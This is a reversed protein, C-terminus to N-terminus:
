ATEAATRPNVLDTVRVVLGPTLRGALEELSEVSRGPVVCVDALSRVPGTHLVTEYRYRTLENHPVGRKLRVDVGSVGARGRAWATFFDPDIVLEKDRLVAHEVATRVRGTRGQEGARGIQVASHLSRLAGRHRVDGVLIRGGPALLGLVGDLVGALYEGDPFYQVVSNLVIVDFYGVPLGDLVDAPQCRLTVRGAWPVGAVQRGLREIVPASFDTGWYEEVGTGVGAGAGAGVDAGAGTGAGTGTGTGAGAGTGAIVPGMLLGTGVGIELVRRPASEVVRAVAADRWVRMEALPIPEGSYSSNWGTFDAELLGGAGVGGTGGTGGTDSGDAYLTDYVDRWEEVQEGARGAEGVGSGDRSDALEESGAVVYAVLRKDGPADERVVVAAQAM